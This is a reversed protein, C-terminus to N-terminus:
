GKRRRRVPVPQMAPRPLAIAHWAEALVKRLARRASRITRIYLATELMGFMAIMLLAKLTENTM